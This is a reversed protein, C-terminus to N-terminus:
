HCIRFEFHHFEVEVSLFDGATKCTKSGIHLVCIKPNMSHPLVSELASVKVSITLAKWPSCKNTDKGDWM